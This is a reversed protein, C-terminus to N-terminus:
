VVHWTAYDCQNICSARYNLCKGPDHAGYLYMCQNYSNDCLNHCSTRPINKVTKIVGGFREITKENTRDGSQDTSRAMLILVVIAIVGLIILTEELNLM